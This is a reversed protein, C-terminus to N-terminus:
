AKSWDQILEYVYWYYTHDKVWTKIRQLNILESDSLKYDKSFNILDLRGQCELLQELPSGNIFNLESILKNLALVKSDSSNHCQGYCSKNGRNCNKNTVM